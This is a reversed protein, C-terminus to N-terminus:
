VFKVIADPDSGPGFVEKVGMEKLKSADVSPIVGGVIVPLDTKNKKLLEMLETVIYKSSTASCSIGIMGVDEEMATKYLENVERFPAYVVEIGAEVLKKSTYKIGRDHAELHSRTMLVKLTSM